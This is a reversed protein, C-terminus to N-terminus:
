QDVQEPTSGVGTVQGAVQYCRIVGSLAQYCRIVGSLVQYCRIVGSLLCYRVHDWQRRFLHEAEWNNKHIEKVHTVMNNMFNLVSAAEKYRSGSDHDPTPAPSM